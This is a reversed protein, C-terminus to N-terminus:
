LRALIKRIDQDLLRAAETPARVGRIAEEVRTTLAQAIEEWAPTAPPAVTDELQAAFVQMLPDEALLPDQWAQTVAPLARLIRYWDVQVDPRSMFEIFRWCQERHPTGAFIAWNSGGVFSARSVKRPMTAVFWKGEIDPLRQSILKVMWPGSFFMPYFGNRFAEFLDIEEGIPAISSQFLSVFFELAEIFEPDTVRPQTLTPDLVHGGAQWVFPLFEQWHPSLGLGYEGQEALKLGVQYLEEWTAPPHEVGIAQLLDTRYYLVRVDVYWPVGYVTGGVVATSWSGPFFNAPSVVESRAIFEDLPVLAGMAAFAAMWTTGVQCLDPATGGAVATIIKDYALDWPIQVVRVKIDPNEEEFRSTIQDLNLGEEGMAWVTITTQATTSLGVLSTVVLIVFAIERWKM